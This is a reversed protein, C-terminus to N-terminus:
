EHLISETLSYFGTSPNQQHHGRNLAKAREDLETARELASEYGKAFDRAFNVDKNYAPLYSKLLARIKVRTRLSHHDSFHLLLWLEICPNSIALHIENDKAQQVAEDIRPHSDVDFVCWVADFVLNKDGEKKAAKLAATKLKKAIEVVTKPGGHDAAIRIQVRPNHCAAALGRLYQPETVAGESVVLIIPKPKLFPKPRAPKRDRDRRRNGM